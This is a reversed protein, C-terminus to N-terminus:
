GPSEDVSEAPEATCGCRTHYKSGISQSGRARIGKAQGGAKRKGAVVAKGRGGVGKAAAESTYVAGRGALMGCFSCPNGDTVRRWLPASQQITERGAAMVDLQSRSGLEGITALKSRARVDATPGM